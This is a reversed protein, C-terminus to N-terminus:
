DLLQHRVYLWQDEGYGLCFFIAQFGYNGDGRVDQVHTIYPHFMDPIEKMLPHTDCSEPMQNLDIFDSVQESPEQNLDPIEIIYSSHRVPEKNLEVLDVLLNQRPQIAVDEPLKIPQFIDRLKRLLSKKGVKSQKTFNEKFM